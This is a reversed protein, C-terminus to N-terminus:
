SIVFQINASRFPNQLGYVSLNEASTRSRLVFGEHKVLSQLAAVKSGSKPGGIRPLLDDQSCIM